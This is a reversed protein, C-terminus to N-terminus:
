ALHDFWVTYDGPFNAPDYLYQKGTAIHFRVQFLDGAKIPTTHNIFHPGSPFAILTGRQPNFGFRHQTFELKGGYVEFDGDFPTKEQYDCLFLVCSFDRDRLKVWKSNLFNSHECHPTEGECGEPYWEFLMPETGRYEVDYYKEIKSVLDQFRQFIVEESREHGKATKVPAGETDTDPYIFNLDDVIEECLLPSLFEQVIFFPSRYKDPTRM